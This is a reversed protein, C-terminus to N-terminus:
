YIEHIEGKSIPYGVEVIRLKVLDNEKAIKSKFEVQLYNRSHGYAIGNINKEVIVEVTENLFKNRYDIAMIENLTQLQKKRFDKISNSVIKDMKYAKTNPRRSYPFVHMEGFGINKIFEYEEKFDDETEGNFGVMIDTTINCLPFLNRIKNIKELFYQTNYKRNM